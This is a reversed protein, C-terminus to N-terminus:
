IIFGFKWFVITPCASCLCVDGNWFSLFLFSSLVSGLCTFCRVPRVFRLAWSYDEKARESQSWRRPEALLGRRCSGALDPVQAQPETLCSQKKFDLHLCGREWPHLGRLRERSDWGQPVPHPCGAEAQVLSETGVKSVWEEWPGQVQPSCHLPLGSSRQSVQPTM